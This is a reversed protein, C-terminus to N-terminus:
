GLDHYNAADKLAKLPKFKVVRHAPITIVEGTKPNRGVRDAKNTVSLTGIGPLTIEDGFEIKTNVVNSLGKLVLNIDKKTLKTYEAIDNILLDKSTM